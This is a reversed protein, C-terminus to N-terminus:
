GLFLHAGVLSLGEPILWPFYPKGDPVLPLSDTQWHLLCLLYLSLGQTPFIGQLFFIAVWELIRAQLIEHVSSGHGHSHVGCLTLSSQVDSHVCPTSM